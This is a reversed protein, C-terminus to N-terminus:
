KKESALGRAPVYYLTFGAFIVNPNRILPRNNEYLDKWKRTTGYKDKSITGLTNGQRVLYPLGNPQWVFKEAPAEYKLEMGSHLGGKIEERNWAKLEKWKRYDGYIRFAAMMLTEGKSIKYHEFEHAQMLPAPAPVEALPQNVFEEQRPEVPARMEEKPLETVMIPKEEEKQPEAAVVRTAPAVKDEKFEAVKPEAKEVGEDDKSDGFLSSFFGTGKEEKEEKEDGEDDKVDKTIEQKAVVAPKTEKKEVIKAPADEDDESEAKAAIEQAPAPSDETVKFESSASEQPQAVGEDEESLIMGCSSALLMISIIPLIKKMNDGENRSSM